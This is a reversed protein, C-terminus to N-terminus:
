KNRKLLQNLIESRAEEAAVFVNDTLKIEDVLIFVKAALNYGIRTKYIYGDKKLKYSVAYSDITKLNSERNLDPKVVEETEVSENEDEEDRYKKPRGM